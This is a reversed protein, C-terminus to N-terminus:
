PETTADGQISGNQENAEAEAIERRLAKVMAKDMPHDSAEAIALFQRYFETTGPDATLRDGM